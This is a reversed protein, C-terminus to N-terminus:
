SQSNLFYANLILHSKKKIMFGTPHSRLSWSTIDLIGLNLVYLALQFLLSQKTWDKVYYTSIGLYPVLLRNQILIFNGDKTNRVWVNTKLGRMQFIFNFPFIYLDFLYQPGERPEEYTSVRNLFCTIEGQSMQLVICFDMRKTFQAKGGLNKNQM